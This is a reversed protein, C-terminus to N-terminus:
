RSAVDLRGLVAEKAADDRQNFDAIWGNVANQDTVDVGEDRMALAIRKGM